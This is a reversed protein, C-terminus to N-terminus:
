AGEEALLDAVEQVAYWALDEGDLADVLAAAGADGEAAAPLAAAAAAVEGTLDPTDVHVSAVRALPVDAALRVLAPHEDSAAPGVEADVAVVVRRAVDTSPDLRTLSVRAAVTMAVYELDEEETMGSAAYLERLGPTVAYAPGAPLRGDAQLSRLGEWTLPVYVRTV